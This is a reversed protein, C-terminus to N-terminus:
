EHRFRLAEYADSTSAGSPQEVYDFPGHRFRLAEYAASALVTASPQGVSADFPGHRHPLAEYAEEALSQASPQNVANATADIGTPRGDLRFGIITLALAVIALAAVAYLVGPRLRVGEVEPTPTDTIM